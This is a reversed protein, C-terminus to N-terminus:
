SEHAGLLLPLGGLDAIIPHDGGARDEGFSIDRVIRYTGMGLQRAGDLYDRRDDVFVTRHPEVELRALATRFIGPAPKSVGVECSLVVADTEDELGLRQVVPRTSPSCNSVVALKYGTARLERLVPLSDAYWDVEHALHRAEAVALEEILGPTPDVGCTEAVALLVSHVDAHRGSDRQERLREYADSVVPAPVGLHRAVLATHRSWDGTVLTDYLDFLVAETGSM